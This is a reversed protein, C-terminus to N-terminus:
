EELWRKGRWQGSTEGIIHETVNYVIMNPLFPYCKSLWARVCLDEERINELNADLAFRIALAAFAPRFVSGSLWEEMVAALMRSERRDRCDSAPIDLIASVQEALNANADALVTHGEVKHPYHNHQWQQQWQEYRDLLVILRQKIYEAQLRLLPHNNSQQLNLIGRIFGITALCAEAFWLLCSTNGQLEKLFL